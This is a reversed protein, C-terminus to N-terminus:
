YTKSTFVGNTIKTGDSMVCNFTGVISPSISTITISGSVAAVGNTASSDINIQYQAGDITYSQVALTGFIGLQIVPYSTSTTSTGSYGAITAIGGSSVAYCNVSSFSSGNVTATMSYAPTSSSSKKCSTFSAFGIGAMAAIM